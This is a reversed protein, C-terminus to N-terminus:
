TDEAEDPAFIQRVSIVFICNSVALFVITNFMLKPWTNSTHPCKLLMDPLIVQATTPIKSVLNAQYQM